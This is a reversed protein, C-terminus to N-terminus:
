KIEMRMLQQIKFLCFGCSIVIMLLVGYLSNKIFGCEENTINERCIMDTIFVYAIPTAIALFLLPIIFHYYKDNM